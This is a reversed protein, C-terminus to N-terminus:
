KKRRYIARSILDHLHDELNRRVFINEYADVIFEFLEKSDPGMLIDNLQNKFKKTM